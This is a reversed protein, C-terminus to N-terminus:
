DALDSTVIISPISRLAEAVVLTDLLTAARQARAVDVQALEHVEQPPDELRGRRVGARAAKSWVCRHCWWGRAPDSFESEVM